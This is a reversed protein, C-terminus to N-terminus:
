ISKNMNLLYQNLLETFVLTKLVKEIDIFVFLSKYEQLLRICKKLLSNENILNTPKVEKGAIIPSITYSKGRLM